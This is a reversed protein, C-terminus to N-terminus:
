NDINKVQNSIDSESSSRIQFFPSSVTPSASASRGKKYIFRKIPSPNDYFEKFYEAFDVKM